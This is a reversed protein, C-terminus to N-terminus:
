SDPSRLVRATAIAPKRIGAYLGKRVRAVKKTSKLMRAILILLVPPYPLKNLLWKRM